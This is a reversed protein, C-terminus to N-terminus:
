MINFLKAAKKLLFGLLPQFMTMHPSVINVADAKQDGSVLYIRDFREVSQNPQHGV